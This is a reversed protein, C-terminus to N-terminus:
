LFIVIKGLECLRQRALHQYDGKVRNVSVCHVSFLLYVRLISCIMSPRGGSFFISVVVLFDNLQKNLVTGKDFHVYAPM